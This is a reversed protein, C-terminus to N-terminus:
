KAVEVTIKYKSGNFDTVTIAYKCDGITEMDGIETIIEETDAAKLAKKVRTGIYGPYVSPRSQIRAVTELFEPVSMPAGLVITM